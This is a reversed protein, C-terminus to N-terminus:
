KTVRLIRHGFSAVDICMKGNTCAVADGSEADLVKEADIPLAIEVKEADKKYMNAILLLMESGSDYYSVRVDDNSVKVENDFYPKWEANETDFSDLISWLKSMQELPEGTDVPKPIIGYPLANSMAESFTWAPPNSYCLMNVRIGLNRGTYVARYYGEPVRELTGKMFFAQLSEGEWMVHSFAMTSVPFTGYSHSCIIGGRKEVMACLRKMLKRIAFVPYTYRLNGESDRYGCGHKENRCPKSPNISDLYLGDFGFEDMLKEVNEVFVDQWSSNYCVQPDRQWPFRYWHWEMDSYIVEESKEAYFPSLTSLEYGFYPIVKMGRKHAESVILKLREATTRTLFPSNQMDNWKEHIYLTNVGLRAIRDIAIENTDGFPRFLFEEYPELIKKFCDIHMNKEQYLNKPLPKIPTVQMGIRFSIPMLNIGNNDGKSDRWIYPESDLLHLRIVVEDEGVICEIAHKEDEVQWNKDSEFFVSFGVRDNGVYLQHLFPLALSEKPMSGAAYLEAPMNPVKGDFLAPGHPSYQYSIAASKKLPIELWLRTLVRPDTDPKALGFAQSVWNGHTAVTLSWDMMGDYEACLATNYLFRSSKMYQCARVEKGEEYGYLTDSTVDSVVIEEGNELGVLRMPSTLLEEGASVISSLFPSGDLTYKRNYPTIVCKGGEAEATIPCLASSELEYLNEKKM